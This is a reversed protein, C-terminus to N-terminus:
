AASDWTIRGRSDLTPAASKCWRDSISYEVEINIDPVVAQMGERMLFRIREAEFGLRADQPVEILVEDHIFNVIKYGARWLSWLALKAGDAALGQFVTNKQQCYNAEARLRGTLTFVPGKGLEAWLCHNLKPSPRRGLIDAHAAAPLVELNEQLRGWFFDLEEKSYPRGSSTTPEPDRVAKLCMAGITACPALYNDANRFHDKGTWEHYAEPTLQLLYALRAASDARIELFDQMEPYLDFWAQEIDAAEAETLEIKYSSRAYDVLGDTGMGGPKGFNIAKAKNREPGTVEDIPKRMVHAALLRHLDQGSNILKGMRSEIGLQDQVSQALTRLEVTAYDADIFVHDPSPIICERVHDKKPLNQANIEGFSSTRGTDVLPNFSPHLVPHQLKDIFTKQLKSVAKYELLTDVFPEIGRLRELADKSSAIQGSTTRELRLGPQEAEIKTLIAQLSKNVGKEGPVYGSKRLEVLLEASKAALREGIKETATTDIHLGNATVARLVIAGRSQIHHTQPGWRNIQEELWEESIYGFADVSAELQEQLHGRLEQYVLWTAAADRALYELYVPEIEHPPRQLWKSYSLRVPRGDSDAVDKPLDFGLYREVCHDLTSQGKGSATHGETGLMLLRHLLQTDWVQDHDVWDYIDLDSGALLQLVDLDFPAHHFVLSVHRHAKLFAVADDRQIFYGRTGDYAAGLVYAPTLRPHQDAILTTECDFATETEFVTGMDEIYPVFESSEPGIQIQM